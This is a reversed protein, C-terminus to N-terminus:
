KLYVRQDPQQSEKPITRDGSKNTKAKDNKMM